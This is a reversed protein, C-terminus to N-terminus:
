RRQKKFRETTLKEQTIEVKQPIKYSPLKDKCYQRMRSRFASLSEDAILKVKAKVTQGTIMNPESSVAVEEVNDMNQLISEIEAPFVKEGGVNIVDSDRGLIRIYDGEQEVVDGTIMWGDETFPSPANLYGLMAYDSKIQLMGEVIRTQFGDGGVKMYLSESSRSKSKLIGVESLGYTQILQVHPLQDKLLYLTSEPMVESGYTITELSSLDMRQIEGSILLLNLFTPSSPLMQARHQAIAQCVEHPTRDEPVILCGTNSLSYLLTNLGGIHDFLMFAIMRKGSRKTEYRKLLSTADHVMAKSKGTSGSSFLMIGPHGSAKLGLLMDHTAQKGTSHTHLEGGTVYVIREAEVLHVYEQKKEPVSSYHVPVVICGLEIMALLASVSYPSFDSELAVVTGKVCGEDRLRIQFAQIQELLWRYTYRQHKWVMAEQDADEQFRSLLLSLVM